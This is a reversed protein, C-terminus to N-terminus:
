FSLRLGHPLVMAAPSARSGTGRAVVYWVVAGTLAAAGVALAVNTATLRASYDDDRADAVAGAAANPCREPVPCAADREGQASGALGFFVGALALGAVGAGGLIWPGVGPSSPAPRPAAIPAPPPPPAAIPAPPPPPPPPPPAPPPAEPSLALDVVTLAGETATVERAFRIHGPAEAVVRVSGPMVPTAVGFLAPLVARGDVQVVLGAPANPAVRLELRGVRPEVAARVTECVQVITERNRLTADLAADRLCARAQDLAEVRQDLHQHERALFATLSPTVRLTAARRALELARAHDGAQSAADAQAVLERRAAEAPDGQASARLPVLASLVVLLHARKM